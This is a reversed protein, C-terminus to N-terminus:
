IVEVLARVDAGGLKMNSFEANVTTSEGPEIRGVEVIKTGLQRPKDVPGDVVTVNLKLGNVAMIGDNTVEITYIAYNAMTREEIVEASITEESVPSTCGASCLLLVLSLGALLIVTAGSRMNMGGM